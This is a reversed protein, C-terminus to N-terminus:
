AFAVDILTVNYNEAEKKENETTTGPCICFIASSRSDTQKGLANCLDYNFSNIGGRTPGWGTAFFVIGFLTKM